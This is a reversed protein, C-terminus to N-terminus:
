QIPPVPHRITSISPSPYLGVNSSSSHVASATMIDLKSYSERTSSLCVVRNIPEGTYWTRPWCRIGVEAQLTDLAGKLLVTHSLLLRKGKLYLM